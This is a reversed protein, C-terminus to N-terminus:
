TNFKCLYVNKKIYYLFTAGRWRSLGRLIVASFHMEASFIWGCLRSIRLQRFAIPKAERRVRKPSDHLIRGPDANYKKHRRIEKKPRRIIRILRILISRLLDPSNAYNTLNASLFFYAPRRIKRILRILKVRLIDSLNTFNAYNASLFFLCNLHRLQIHAYQAAETATHAGHHTVVAAPDPEHTGILWM